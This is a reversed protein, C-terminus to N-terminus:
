LNPLVSIIKQLDTFRGEKTSQFIIILYTQNPAYNIITALNGQALDTFGTKSILLGFTKNVDDNTNIAVGKKDDTKIATFKTYEYIERENDYIYQFVKVLDSAKMSNSVELDKGKEFDLGTLNQFKYDTIGLSQIFSNCDLILDRNFIQKYIIGLNEAEENDSQILAKQIKSKANVFKQDNINLNNEKFTKIFTAVTIVKSISALPSQVNENKGSIIKKSELNYILYKEAELKVNIKQQNNKTNIFNDTEKKIFNINQSLKLWTFFLFILFISIIIKFINELKKQNKEQKNM